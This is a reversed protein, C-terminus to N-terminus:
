LASQKMFRPVAPGLIVVFLAPFILFVMPFLMKVPAKMAQEEARQRRRLRLQESQIKLIKGMSVGLQQAQIVAAVFTAVDDVGTRRVMDRMADRSAMGLQIDNLVRKFENSLENDWKEAVRKLALDFGLGAEVSITLLDLADPLAKLLGKKRKKIQAGLWYIPIMFGLILGVSSYMLAQPTEMGAIPGFCIYAFIGGAVLGSLLRIGMFMAPTIGGPNGALMLNTRLKESQKGPAALNGLKTLIKNALPAMIRQSFPLQLEMEELTMTRETFTSLRDSIASTQRGRLMFFMLIVLGVVFIGIPFLLQANM